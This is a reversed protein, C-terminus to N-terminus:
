NAILETYTVQRHIQNNKLEYIVDCNKLTEQRHAIILITLGERLQEISQTIAQETTVDLASTAEDLILINSNRYLARAIGIRQRQGGSLRVGQEGVTTELKEPLNNIVDELQAKKIASILREQNIKEKPIGFAINERISSDSLYIHQPVHSIIQQWSRQNEQSIPV